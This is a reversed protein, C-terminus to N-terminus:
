PSLPVVMPPVQRGAELSIAREAPQRGDAELRLIWDGPALGGLHAGGDQGTEAPGPNFLGQPAPHTQGARRLSARAGPLAVGTRGDRALVLVAGGPRLRAELAAGAPADAPVDVVALRSGASGDYGLERVLVEHEGPPLSIALEGTLSRAERREVLSRMVVEGGRRHLVWAELAVLTAPERSDGLRAVLVLPRPDGPPAPTKNTALALNNDPPQLLTAEDVVAAPTEEVLRPPPLPTREPTPAPTPRPTPSPTPIPTALPVFTTESLIPETSPLARRREARDLHYV